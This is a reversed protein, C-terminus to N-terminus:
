VIPSAFFPFLKIVSKRMPPTEAATDLVMTAGISLTLSRKCTCSAEEVMLASSLYLPMPSQKWLTRLSCPKAEKQLPFRALTM